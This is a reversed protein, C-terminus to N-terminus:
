RKLRAQTEPGSGARVRPEALTGTISYVLTKEAGSLSLDLERGASVTGRIGYTAARSVIESKEIEVNGRRVRASGQWRGIQLPDGGDLSIHPLKGDRVDFEIGADASQWFAALNRGSATVQYSGTATGSIWSDHMADALRQLSLNTLTGSGSYAPTAGTFDAQWDGHHIGDLVDFNLNSVKLKGGELEIETAVHSMALNGIQMQAVSVQGAARLNDVLMPAGPQAPTLVQYWRRADPHSGLWAYLGSMGIQDANLNFHILCAGPTGCGRPVTVSGTWRAGAARANLKDLRAEDPTLKLETSSIEIPRNVGRVIAHVNHLQATGTVRPMLFSAATGNENGRWSGAIQLDMQADGQVNARIAPLGILGAM